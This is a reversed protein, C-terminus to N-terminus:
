FTADPRCAACFICRFQMVVAEIVVSAFLEIVMLGRLKVDKCGLRLFDVRQQPPRLFITAVDSCQYSSSSSNSEIVSARVRLIRTMTFVGLVVCAECCAADKLSYICGNGNTQPKQPSSSASKAAANHCPLSFGGRKRLIRVLHAVLSTDVANLQETM